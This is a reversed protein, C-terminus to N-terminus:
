EVPATLVANISNGQRVTVAWSLNGPRCTSDGGHECWAFSLEVLLWANDSLTDAPFTATVPLAAPVTSQLIVRPPTRDSPRPMSWVRLTMPAETNVASGPPLAPSLTLTSEQSIDLAVTAPTAARMLADAEIPGSPPTLVDIIIERHAGTAPDLMIVRHNNTDAIFLHSHTGNSVDTWTALSLGGPESLDLAGPAPTQARGVGAFAHSTRPGPSVLKIRDNYTDAILLQEGNRTPYVTVGLAHQLRADPYAGDIDGFDFLGNGLITAVQNSELDLFRVASVESDAFYLRRADGSLALGSPQALMALMAPGDILNEGMGGAIASARANDALDIRWLQHTGAMAVYLRAGEPSLALDWPSSLGQERGPGGGTRDFSQSGTGAITSVLGTSLDIARITHNSRDAVYLTGLTGLASDFAMGQPEDFRAQTSWGDVLGPQGSGYVGFLSAHGDPDPWNTIIVRNHASDAIALYGRMDRWPHPPIALVKGPYSLGSAPRPAADPTIQVRRPALTGNERAIDLSQQIVQDLIDRKGEGSTFGLLRGDPGILVFTPWSRVGYRTWLAMGTDILVPHHINNRFMADRISARDGEAEFKASHVGIVVFPQDAYKDELYALDPLMHVCNICCHTWFDLLVIHGKLEDSLRLPRDSNLWAQDPPLATLLEPAPPNQAPSPPPDPQALACPALPCAILFMSALVRIFRM